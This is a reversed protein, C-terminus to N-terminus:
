TTGNKRKTLVGTIEILFLHGFKDTFNRGITRLKGDAKKPLLFGALFDYTKIFTLLKSDFSEGKAELLSIRYRKAWKLFDFVSYQTEWGPAWRGRAMALHKKLTYYSFTQPVNVVLYGDPNLVRVQEKMIGSVDKFHEVVGQSLILDFYGNTFPLQKADGKLFKINKCNLVKAIRKGAEVSEKLIDVGYIKAKPFNKSVFCLNRGTGFGIELVRLSKKGTKKAYKSLLSFFVKNERTKLLYDNRLTKAKSTVYNIYDRRFGNSTKRVAM